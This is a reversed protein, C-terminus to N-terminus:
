RRRKSSIGHLHHDPMLQDVSVTPPSGTTMVKQGRQLVAKTNLRVTPRCWGRSRCWRRAAACCGASTRGGSRTRTAPTRRRPADDALVGAALQLLEVQRYHGPLIEFVCVGVALRKRPGIGTAGVPLVWVGAVVSRAALWEQEPAFCIGPQRGHLPHHCHFAAVVGPRHREGRQAWSRTPTPTRQRRPCQPTRSARCPTPTPSPIWRTPDPRPFRRSIKGALGRRCRDSRRARRGVAADHSVSVPLRHSMKPRATLPGSCPACNVGAGPRM